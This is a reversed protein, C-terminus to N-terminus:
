EKQIYDDLNELKITVNNNSIEDINQNEDNYKNNIVSTNNALTDINIRDLNYNDKYEVNEGNSNSIDRVVQKENSYEDNYDQQESIDRNNINQMEKQTFNYADSYEQSETPNNNNINNLDIDESKNYDDLKEERNENNSNINKGKNVDEIDVSSQAQIRFNSLEFNMPIEMEDIESTLAAEASFFNDNQRSVINSINSFKQSLKEVNQSLKKIGDGVLKGNALAGQPKSTSSLIASMRNAKGSFSNLRDSDYNIMENNM